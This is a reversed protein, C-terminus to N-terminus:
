KARNGRANSSRSKGNQIVMDTVNNVIAKMNPAPPVPGADGQPPTSSQPVQVVPMSSPGEVDLVAAPPSIAASVRAQTAATHDSRSAADRYSYGAQRGAGPGSGPPLSDYEALVARGESTIKAWGGFRSRGTDVLGLAELRPCLECSYCTAYSLFRLKIVEAQSLGCGITAPLTSLIPPTSTSSKRPPM